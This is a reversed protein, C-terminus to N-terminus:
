LTAGAPDFVAGNCKGGIYAKSYIDGTETTADYDTITLVEHEQVVLIPRAGPPLNAGAATYTACASGSPGVSVQGTGAYTFPFPLAGSTSCPVEKYDPPLLCASFTGQGSVSYSWRREM